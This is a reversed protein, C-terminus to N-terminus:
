KHNLKRKILYDLSLKGAGGMLLPTLMVVFLLPLEYNGLGDNNEDIIRFGMALDSFSNWEAPWHVTYIAVITLTILSLSFFRTALGFILGVAGAIEFFTALQWTYEAPLLNFPFPFAIEAFWNSGQLKELGAKGFEWALIWRLFLPPVSYSLGTLFNTLRQYSQLLFFRNGSM